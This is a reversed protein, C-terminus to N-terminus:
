YQKLQHSYLLGYHRCKYQAVDLLSQNKLATDSGQIRDILEAQLEVHQQMAQIRHLHGGDNAYRRSPL